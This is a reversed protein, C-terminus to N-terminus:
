RSHSDRDFVKTSLLPVGEAIGIEEDTIAPKMQKRNDM